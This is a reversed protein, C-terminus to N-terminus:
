EQDIRYDKLSFDKLDAYYRWLALASLLCGLSCIAFAYQIHGVFFSISFLATLLLRIVVNIINFVSQTRGIVQNPIHRFLYTIRMIRSGANALGLLWMAAFFFGVTRNFILIGFVVASITPLVINGLVTSNKFVRAAVFGSLVSGLAFAAEGVGFVESGAYLYNKTFNPMLVYSLQMTTAFIFFSANGFLFLLPYQRLFVVGKSFRGWLTDNERTRHALSTYQMPLIILFSLVYTVGDLLFVNQLPWAAIGNPLWSYTNPAIGSLLVAGLAGALTSTLQGQIELYSTLKGYNKPPTVEQIFAYLTPYHINYTYFTTAFVLIIFPMPVYGQVFGFAAVSLLVLAGFINEALFIHKRNYQDVLTGVYSSWAITFITLVAYVKAFLASQQLHEAFHWPIAIMSLGQAFGSISNAIFLRWIASRNQM